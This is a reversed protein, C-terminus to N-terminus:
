RNKGGQQGPSATPGARMVFFFAPFWSTERKQHAV